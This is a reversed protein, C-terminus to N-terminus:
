LPPGKRRVVEQTKALHWTEGDDISWEEMWDFRDPGINYFKLRFRFLRGDPLPSGGSAHMEGDRWEGSFSSAKDPSGSMLYAHEWQGTSDSYSRLTVGHSSQEGTERDYGIWEDYIMSGSNVYRVKQTADLEYLVEGTEPNYRTFHVDWDGIMFGFQHTGEPLNPAPTSVSEGVVADGSDPTQATAEGPVAAVWLAMGAGWALGMKRARRWNSGILGIGVEIM